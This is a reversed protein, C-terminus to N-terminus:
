YNGRNTLKSLLHEWHIKQWPKDTLPIGLYKSPLSRIKFGLINTLHRQVAVHMNFFCISSKDLNLDMGSAQSFLNLIAKFGKAEKASPTNHFMTDDVFQQHTTAPSHNLPQLGKIVNMDKTSKIICSLGEMLIVFLFPSIPDGQRIGRSPFFPDSPAGNFLISFSPSKVM